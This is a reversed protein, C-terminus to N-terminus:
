CPYGFQDFCGGGGYGGGGYYQMPTVHPSIGRPESFVPEFLAAGSLLAVGTIILATLVFSGKLRM